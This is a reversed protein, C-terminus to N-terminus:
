VLVCTKIKRELLVRSPGDTAADAVQHDRLEQGVKGAAVCLSVKSTAGADAGEGAAASGRRDGIVAEGSVEQAASCFIGERPQAWTPVDLAFVGQSLEGAGCKRHRRRRERACRRRHPWEHLSNRALQGVLEVSAALM